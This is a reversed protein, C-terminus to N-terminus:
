KNVVNDLGEIISPTLGFLYKWSGMDRVNEASTHLTAKNADHVEQFSAKTQKVAESMNKGNVLAKGIEYRAAVAPLLTYVVRKLTGPKTNNSCGVASIQEGAM